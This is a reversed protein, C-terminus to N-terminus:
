ISSFFLVIIFENNRQIKLRQLLHSVGSIVGDTLESILVFLKGYSCGYGFEVLVCLVVGGIM